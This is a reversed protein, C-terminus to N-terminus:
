KTNKREALTRARALAEKCGKENGQEAQARAATLAAQLQAHEAAPTDKQAKPAVDPVTPMPDHKDPAPTIVAKDNVPPPKIVGGSRALDQTTVDPKKSDPTATPPRTPTGHLAALDRVQDLCSDAPAAQAAPVTVALGVAAVTAIRGLGRSTWSSGHLSM